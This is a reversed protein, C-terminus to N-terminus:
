FSYGISFYFGEDQANDEKNDIEVLPLAYDFRMNINKEPNWLLGLGLGAIVTQNQSLSNPNNTNNLVAGVDLFPALQIVAAGNEDRQLIIRDEVSFRLGNDGALYNQRYGRVSQGGGITFQQSALLSDTTFQMDGQIILFHNPNFIQVRQVQGLWGFFQGDPIDGDNSTADFLGTGVNFQSRLYWVGSDSRSLYDQAFNIVTTKSRGDEDPGFGFGTPQDLIFTQGNEHAFGVSLALEQRPTKIIPQRYNIAFSMSEGEINLRDFPEQIVENANYEFEMNVNGDLRNVPLNYGLIIDDLGGAFTHEYNVYIQDGNGTLNAYNLDLEMKESGVSPASYNNVEFKGFFPRTEEVNIVVINRNATDGKKLTASVNEFLPNLRLLKLQDELNNPNFPTTIGREIRNTIYSSKVRKNGEVIIEQISGEVIAIHINGTGLSDEDLVANSTIYNNKVYLQDIESVLAELEQRSVTKGILPSILEQFDAEKFVTSGVVELTNVQISSDDEKQVLQYNVNQEINQGYCFTVFSLLFIPSLTFVMLSQQLWILTKGTSSM